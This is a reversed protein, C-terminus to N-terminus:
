FDYKLRALTLKKPDVVDFFYTVTGKPLSYDRDYDNGKYILGIQQKLQEKYLNFMTGPTNTYGVNILALKWFQTKRMLAVAEPETLCFEQM